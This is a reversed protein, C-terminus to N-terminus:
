VEYPLRKTQIIEDGRITESTYDTAIVDTAIIAGPEVTFNAPVVSNKGLMTIGESGEIRGGLHSNRGVVAHKDIIAREILAGEEIIADTLIVSERVIAGENVQVGPSLISREIHSNPGLMCGDTIMSDVVTSNRSLWM